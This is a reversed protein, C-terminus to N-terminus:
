LTSVLMPFPHARLLFGAEQPRLFHLSPLLLCITRASWRLPFCFPAPPFVVACSSIHLLGCLNHANAHDVPCM